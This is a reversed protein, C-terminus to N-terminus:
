IEAGVSKISDMKWKYKKCKEIEGLHNWTEAIDLYINYYEGDEIVDNLIKEANDLYRRAEEENGLVAHIRAIRSWLWRHEVCNEVQFLICIEQAKQYYELAKEFDAFYLSITGLYEYCIIKDEANASNYMNLINIAKYLYKGSELMQEEESGSGLGSYLCIGLYIYTELVEWSEDGFRDRRQEMVHFLKEYCEVSGMELYAKGIQLDIELVDESSEGRREKYIKRALEFLQIVEGPSKETEKFCQAKKELLIAMEVQTSENNAIYIEIARDICEVAKEWEQLTMLTNAKNGYVYAIRPHTPGYANEYIHLAKEFYKISDWCRGVQGYTAALEAYAYASKIGTEGYAKECKESANELIDVARQLDGRDACAYALNIEANITDEGYGGQLKMGLSYAMNFYEEATKKDIDWYYVGLDGYLLLLYKDSEPRNNKFINLAAMLEDLRQEEDIYQCIRAMMIHTIGMEISDEKGYYEQIEVSKKQYVLAKAYEANAYYFNALNMYLVNLSSNHLDNRQEFFDLVTLYCEEAELRNNEEVLVAARNLYIAGIFIYNEDSIDLKQVLALAEETFSSAEDIYGLELCVLGCASLTRIYREELKVNEGCSEKLNDLKVKVEDMRDGDSILLLEKIEKSFNESFLFDSIDDSDSAETDESLNIEDDIDYSKFCIKLFFFGAILLILILTKKYNENERILSNVGYTAYYIM